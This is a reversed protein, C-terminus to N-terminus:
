SCSIYAKQNYKCQVFIVKHKSEVPLEGDLNVATCFIEVGNESRNFTYYFTSNTIDDYYEVSGTGIISSIGTINKYWRITSQPRSVSTFCFFQTAVNETVNVYAGAPTLFNVYTVPVALFFIM